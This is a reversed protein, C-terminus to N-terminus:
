LKGLGQLAITDPSADPMSRNLIAPPLPAILIWSPRTFGQAAHGHGNCGSFRWNRLWFFRVKQLEWFM